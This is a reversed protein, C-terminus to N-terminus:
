KKCGPVREHFEAALVPFHDLLHFGAADHPRLERTLRHGLRSARQLIRKETEEGAGAVPDLGAVLAGIKRIQSLPEERRADAVGAGLQDNVVDGFTLNLEGGAGGQGGAGGNGLLFGSVGGNGGNGGYGATGGAGANPGDFRGAAGDAGRGGAGGAGGNGFLWAMAAGGDGGNGGVAGGGSVAYVFTTDGGAGGDGGHGMWTGGIGGNGGAAGAGGDGGDGGNGFGIANGGSGGAVGEVDSSWGAGGDGFWLGGHGGDPNEATGDIGDGILYQGSITNIAGNVMEGLPNNIWFETVMHLPSYFMQDFLTAVNFDGMLASLDFADASGPADVDAAPVLWDFSFLDEFDAQATPAPALPTMGFALFAAVASGTGIMRNRHRSATKGQTM